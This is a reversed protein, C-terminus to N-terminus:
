ANKLVKLVKFENNNVDGHMTDIHVDYISVSTICQSSEQFNKTGKNRCTSLHALM